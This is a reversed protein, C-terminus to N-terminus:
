YITGDELFDYNNIEFLEIINEDSFYYECESTLETALRESVLEIFEGVTSENTFKSKYKRWSEIFCYDGIYGTFPCNELDFSIKSSRRKNERGDCYIIKDKYYIKPKENPLLYNNVIYSYARKGKLEEIDDNSIFDVYYKIGDYTYIEAKCNMAKAITEISNIMDSDDIELDNRFNDIAKEKVHEPLEDFKYVNFTKTVTYM